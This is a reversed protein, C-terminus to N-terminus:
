KDLCRCCPTALGQGSSSAAAVLTSVAVRSRDHHRVKAKSFDSCDCFYFFDRKSADRTRRTMMSKLVQSTLYLIITVKTAVNSLKACSRAQNAWGSVGDADPSGAEAWSVQAALSPILLQRLCTVPEFASCLGYISGDHFTRAM